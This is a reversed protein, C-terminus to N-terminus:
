GPRGAPPSRWDGPESRRVIDARVMVCAEFEAGPVLSTCMPTPILRAFGSQHSCVNGPVDQSARLYLLMDVFLIFLVFQLICLSYCKLPEYSVIFSIIRIHDQKRIGFSILLLVAGQSLRITLGSQHESM